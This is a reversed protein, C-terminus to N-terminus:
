YHPPFIHSTYSNEIMQPSFSALSLSLLSFFFVCYATLVETGKSIGVPQNHYLLLFFLGLLPNAAPAGREDGERSRFIRYALDIGLVFRFKSCSQFRVEGTNVVELSNVKLNSHASKLYKKFLVLLGRKSKKKCICICGTIILPKRAIIFLSSLGFIVFSLFIAGFFSVYLIKKKISNGSSQTEM